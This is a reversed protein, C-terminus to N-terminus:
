PSLLGERIAFRVLGSTKQIGLKAMLNSRHSEVTRISLNLGTAIEKNSCGEAILQLVERERSTLNGTGLRSAPGDGTITNVVHQTAAASLYRRGARVADIAQMLEDSSCTKSLFGSAGARLAEEVQSQSDHMSLILVSLSLRNKLLRRTVELGSLRPLTIEMLMLDPQLREALLIAQHGDAAGGVVLLDRRKEILTGIAERVITHQDVILIRTEM